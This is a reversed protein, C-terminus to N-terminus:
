LAATGRSITRDNWRKPVRGFGLVDVRPSAAGRGMATERSVATPSTRTCGRGVSSAVATVVLVKVRISGDVTTTCMGTERRAAVIREHAVNHVNHRRTRAVAMPSSAPFERRM